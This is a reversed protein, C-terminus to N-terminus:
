VMQAPVAAVRAPATLPEAVPPVQLPPVPVKLGLAEVNVAAYVGLAASIVAPVAVSVKVVTPGQAATVSLTVMVMVGAAVTM